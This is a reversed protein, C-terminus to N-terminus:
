THGRRFPASIGAMRCGGAERALSGGNRRYPSASGGIGRFPLNALVPTNWSLVFSIQQYRAQVILDRCRHLEFHGFHEIVTVVCSRAVPEDM